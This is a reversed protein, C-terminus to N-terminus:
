PTDMQLDSQINKQDTEYSKHTPSPTPTHKNQETKTKTKQIVTTSKIIYHKTM